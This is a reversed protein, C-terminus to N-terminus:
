TLSIRKRNRSSLLSSPLRLKKQKRLVEEMDLRAFLAEPKETVQNGSPYLGFTRLDELKREETNLQAFIKEATEPMFPKLLTAGICIGEVLNYLVTELRPKDKKRKGFDM